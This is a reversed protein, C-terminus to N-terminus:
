IMNLTSKGSGTGKQIIKKYKKKCSSPVKFRVNKNIGKFADKGFKKIKDSKIVILNLNRLNRFAGSGIVTVNKGIVAKKLDRCNKLASKGVSVVKIKRGDAKIYSPVEFSKIKGSSVNELSATYIGNKYTIRYIGKKVKVKKLSSGGASADSSKSGSKISGSVSAGGQQSASNGASGAAAKTEEPAPTKKAGATGSDEPAPTLAPAGTVDPTQIAEPNETVEPTETVEPSETEGPSPVPAAPILTAEPLTDNDEEGYDSNVPGLIGVTDVDLTGELVEATFTHVGPELGEYEYATLFEGSNSVKQKESVTKEDVAVKIVAPDKEQKGNIMFGTGNFTYTLVAGKEGRSLSRQYVAMGQGDAHLWSGTYALRSAREQTLDYTEMNDIYESMYPVAGKIKSVILNDFDTYNFSSGLGIRGYRIPDPDTYSVVGKGNIYAKIVAGCAKLKLTNWQGSGAKFGDAETVSGNAVRDKKRFLDWSGDTRVRFTYGSTNFISSGNGMQRVSVASYPKREISQRLESDYENYVTDTEVCTDVSVSYNMWRFDGLVAFADKGSLGANWASPLNESKEIQQRLVHGNGNKVGEFVGDINNIYRPMFSNEGGRSSIYDSITNKDPYGDSGLETVKQGKYEFDDAYLIDNHSDQVAGTSDTDLVPRNKDSVPIGETHESDSSEKLSTVTVISYPKVTVKYSNDGTKEANGLCKMYNENFAGQDAARTEWIELNDDKLKMNKVTVTYSQTYSSDNVIVTSFDSKDPAALTLYNQGGDAGSISHDTNGNMKGTSESAEPVGRWIGKSNDSNEWGTVAFKSLHGLMLLGADYHVWGSWPDRASVLEKFSYQDGEYMSAAAPQYIALTRRANVFGAIVSNMMELGSGSGGIGTGSDGNGTGNVPRFDTNSFVAQCESGWVEKDEEDAFWKMSGNEDDQPVYHYGVVSVANNFDSDSRLKNGVEPSVVNAEDSVIFKIKRFLERERDDPITEKTEESVWKRFDKTRKVDSAKWAENTNPNVYDVMYGYEEYAKLITKKFWQYKKENGSVWKPMAWDLVSVTIDPNIKKADAAIQWGPNRKIDPEENESRMSASEAGTSNNRDNGMEIKVHNMVPYKGGFLYRMIEAYKDPNQSKYDLLLDSTSNASLFGFGKFTLGNVNTSKIDNGDITYSYDKSNDKENESTSAASVSKMGVGGPVSSFVMSLSFVGALLKMFVKKRRM